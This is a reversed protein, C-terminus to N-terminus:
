LVNGLDYKKVGVHKISDCFNNGRCIIYLIEKIVSCDQYCNGISESSETRYKMNNGVSCEIDRM